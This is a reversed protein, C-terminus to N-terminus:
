YEILRLDGRHTGPIQMPGSHRRTDHLVFLFDELRLYAIYENKKKKLNILKKVDDNLYEKQYDNKKIKLRMVIAINEDQKKSTLFIPPQVRFFFFFRLNVAYM